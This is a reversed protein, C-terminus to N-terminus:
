GPRTSVSGAILLREVLSLNVAHPRGTAPAPDRRPGGGAGVGGTM